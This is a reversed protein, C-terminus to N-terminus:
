FDPAEHIPRDAITSTLAQTRVYGPVCTGESRRSLAEMTVRVFRTQSSSMCIYIYVYLPKVETKKCALISPLVSHDCGPRQACIYIHTEKISYM